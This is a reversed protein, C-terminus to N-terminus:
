SRPESRQQLRAWQILADGGDRYYGRRVGATEFGLGAYLARAAGNGVAVELTARAAGQAAARDLQAALVRRGLGLRRRAPAVAVLTIHLEDVILWGCAMAVLALGAGGPEPLWLGLGGRAPEALETSWQGESWFGGLALVDLALCAARDGPELPRLLAPPGEGGAESAPPASTISPEPVPRLPPQRRDPAWETSRIAM